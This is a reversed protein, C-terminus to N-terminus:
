EQTIVLDDENWEQLDEVISEEKKTKAKIYKYAENPLVFHERVLDQLTDENIICRGDADIYEVYCGKTPVKFTKSITLSVTVKTTKPATVEIELNDDEEYM